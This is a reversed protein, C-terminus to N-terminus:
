NATNKDGATKRENEARAHEARVGFLPLLKGVIGDENSKELKTPGCHLYRM